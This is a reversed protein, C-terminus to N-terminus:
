LNAWTAVPDELITHAMYRTSVHICIEASALDRRKKWAKVAASNESGLPRPDTGDIIGLVGKSLLRAKMAKFWWPATSDNLAALEPNGM